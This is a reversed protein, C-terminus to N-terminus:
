MSNKVDVYKVYRLIWPKKVSDFIKEDFRMRCVAILRSDASLKQKPKYENSLFYLNLFERSQEFSQDASIIKSVYINQQYTIVDSSMCSLEFAFVEKKRM